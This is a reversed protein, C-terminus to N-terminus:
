QNNLINGLKNHDALNKVKWNYRSPIKNCEDSYITYSGFDWRMYLILLEHQYESVQEDSNSGCSRAVEGINCSYVRDVTSSSHNPNLRFEKVYTLFHRRMKTHPHPPVVRPRRNRAQIRLVKSKYALTSDRLLFLFFATTSTSGSNQLNRVLREFIYPSTQDLRTFLEQLNRLIHASEGRATSLELRMLSSPDYAAPPYGRLVM